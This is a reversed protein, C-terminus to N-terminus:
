AVLHAKFKEIKGEANHKIHLVWKSSVVNTGPPQEVVEWTGNLELAVLEKQIAECWRPWDSSKHAEAFTPDPSRDDDTMASLGFKFFGIDIDISAGVDTSAEKAQEVTSANQIGKPLIPSNKTTKATGEGSRL